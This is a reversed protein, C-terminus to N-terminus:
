YCVYVKLESDRIVVSLSTTFLQSNCLSHKSSKAKTTVQRMLLFLEQAGGWGGHPGMNLSSDWTMRTETAHTSQRQGIYLLM